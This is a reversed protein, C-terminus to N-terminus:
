QAGGKREANVAREAEDKRCIRLTDGDELSHNGVTCDDLFKVLPVLDHTMLRGGPGRWIVFLPKKTM